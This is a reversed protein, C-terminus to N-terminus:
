TGPVVRNGKRFQEESIGLEAAMRILEDEQPWTTPMQVGTDAPFHNQGDMQERMKKNREMAPRLYVHEIQWNTLDAIQEPTYCWPEQAM